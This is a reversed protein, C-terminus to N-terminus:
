SGRNNSTAKPTRNPDTNLLMFCGTGYTNKAEGPAFCAQGFLAAQQDGLDGAIPVGALLGRAEGYTESSSRITPLMSHPIGMLQLIEPDWTLTELNMLMTRSANTVDTVHVGGDPGGTLNWILWTDITGFLLDDARTARPLHDLLWRLKPGSFYTALPLGVKRRLQDQGGIAALNKCIEATRTDQWVIANGVPEGTRRNWV